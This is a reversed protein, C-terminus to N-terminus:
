LKFYNKEIIDINELINKINIIDSNNKYKIILYKFFFSRVKNISPEIIQTEVNKSINQRIEYYLKSTIKDLLSKDTDKITLKLINSFPPYNFLKRNNLEEEVMKFYDLNYIHSYIKAECPVQIIIKRPTLSLLKSIFKFFDENSDFSNNLFQYSFPIVVLDFENIELYDIILRTAIIINNNKIQQINEINDKDIIITKEISYLKKIIETFQETGIGRNDLRSSKCKPCQLSINIEKECNYCYLSEHNELKKLTLISNCNSCKFIFGCDKCKLNRSYGKKNLLFLVKKSDDLTKKIEEETNFHIYNEFYKMSMDLLSIESTIKESSQFLKIQKTKALNYLYSNPSYSTFIIQAKNIKSLEFASPLFEFRPNTDIQNLNENESEDIIISETYEQPYFISIKTGVIFKVNNDKISSWIENHKFKSLNTNGTIIRYDKDNYFNLLSSVIKEIHSKTPCIIFTIKKNKSNKDIINKILSIKENYLNHKFIFSDSILISSNIKKLTIPTKKIFFKEKRRPEAEALCAKEKIKNKMPLPVINDLFNLSSFNYDCFWNYFKIQNESVIPNINVIRTIDKIMNPKLDSTNKIDFVLGMKSSNRFPIEILQGKKINPYLSEPIRYDLLNLGKKLKILPKVSLYM